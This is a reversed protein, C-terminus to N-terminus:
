LNKQTMIGMNALWRRLDENLAFLCPLLILSIATGFLVGWAMAMVMPAIFPSEGGLGYATPFLGVMTTISTIMIPRFRSAAQEAILSMNGHQAKRNLTFIMVVADNVLVGVLGLVGTLALFSLPLDQVAFALFVGTISFPLVALVLFPQSFSNFLVVLVFLIMFLCGIFALGLSGYSAQQQELEGGHYFSVDPYQQQWNQQSIYDSIKQNITVVDTLKRDIEAMVTISRRGSFHKIDADGPRLKFDAVSSLAIPNGETNIIFLDKLTSLQQQGSKPLQLRFYVREAALQQENIILGDMAVRVADAVQKVSLQYAALNQYNFHLDLSDKGSKQSDWIRTVASSKALFQKIKDAVIQKESGDAMIELEVPKGMVPTDKFPEVNVMTYETQQKTLIRLQKLIEKPSRSLQALPKLHVTILSWAQNRGDSVGYIDTDHHGIQSIIDILDEQPILQRIETVLQQTRLQNDEFRTGNELETQINITDIATEPYLQFRVSSASITIVAIFMLCICLTASKRRQLLWLLIKKYHAQLNNLWQRQETKFPSHALHAPLLFKSEFLSTLLMLSVVVPIVAIFAGELGGIFMLPLFALITTLVSVFVPAAIDKTGAIAAQISDLGSERRSQIAEGTVIADDVLMGLMLILAMLTLSNISYGTFLLLTFTALVSFPLGLSVWFAMRRGLFLWLIIFVSILGLAANSVLTQLMERTFRSIDNVLLMEVGDPLRTQQEQMLQRVSEITALEDASRKKQVQLAIALQGNTNLQVQWNEYDTFVEAIDRMVVSNGPSRARIIVNAIEAPDNFQGVTLVKKESSLSAISGGSDRVNRQSVAQQIEAYSIGLQLMKQPDVQLRVEPKRYGIKEVGSVGPLMRLKQQWQRAQARLLKESVAGTIHVEIAPLNDTGLEQVLPKQQLDSPLLGQARDVAKQINALLKTINKYDPDLTLTILSLNEMSRSFVKSIGSVQLLEDELVKSIALEVEEPGAGPKSTTITVIGMDIKPMVEFRSIQLSILGMLMVLVLILHGLKPRYIFFSVLNNM